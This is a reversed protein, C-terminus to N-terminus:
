PGYSDSETSYKYVTEPRVCDFPGYIADDYTNVNCYICREGDYIHEDYYFALDFEDLALDDLMDQKWKLEEAKKISHKAERRLQKPNCCSCGANNLITRDNRSNKLMVSEGKKVDRARPDFEDLWFAGSKCDLKHGLM